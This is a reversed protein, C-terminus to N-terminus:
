RATLVQRAIALEAPDDGGSFAGIAEHFQATGKEQSKASGTIRRRAHPSSGVVFSLPLIVRGREPADHGSSRACRSWLAGQGPMNLGDASSSELGGLDLASDHAVFEGFSHDAMLGISGFLGRPTGRTFSRRTRLPMKQTKRDPAGRRSRGSLKPGVGGAVIAENAPSPRAHLGLKQACQGAGM